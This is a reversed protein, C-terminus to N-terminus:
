AERRQAGALDDVDAGLADRAHPGRGLDLGACADAVVVVRAVVVAAGAVAAAVVVARTVVSAPGTGRRPRPRSGRRLRPRPAPARLSSVSARAPEVEVAAGATAGASWWARPLIVAPPRPAGRAGDRGDPAGRALMAAAAAPSCWARVGGRRDCRARRGQSCWWRGRLRCGRGRLRRRGRRGHARGRRPRSIGERRLGGVIRPHEGLWPQDQEDLVLLRDGVRERFGEFALAEM